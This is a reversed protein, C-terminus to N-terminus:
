DAGLGTGQGMGVRASDRTSATPDLGSAQALQAIDEQVNGTEKYQGVV